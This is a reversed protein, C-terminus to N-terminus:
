SSVPVGRKTVGCGGALPSADAVVPMRDVEDPEVELRELAPREASRRLVEREVAKGREPLVKLM